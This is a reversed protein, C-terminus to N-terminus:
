KTFEDILASAEDFDSHLLHEDISNLLKGTKQSWTKERLENLINKIVKKEMEACANKIVQLKEKLLILADESDESLESAKEKNKIKKIINDLKELFENTESLLVNIDNERGAQELRFALASLEKEGINALASKMAHVNIIYMHINKEENFDKQLCNKIVGSAKEADRAFIKALQSDTEKLEHGPHEMSEMEAKERQAAELVETSQKDRILKNLTINLRRIDIPKSIFDDFGNNLFMEAHGALANATLAVIPKSYGMKRMQKTTEIGDMKPMMHDMFIVDYTMGDKIKDIAEFGSTALDIKFGYPIMLGKAVYLNTEVDDVILVHGYPMYERTIQTKKVQVLSSRKFQRLNEVAEKGIFGTIGVGDTKQPLRVTITTGENVASKVIIKGSMLDVLNRTITMGLGAGETTRNAELNFRTYEDFLKSIQEPSMGQGTDRIQFVLTVAVAGGGLSSYEAIVALEVEGKDTYKFANSLLNNLIQKIRLDDGILFAPINENVEIKFEIPKSIYRIYNLQIIDNILRAIEYKVPVLELKGAEIKSLDLIDNIINLLLNGSNNIKIFAESTSPPHSTNQMQIETMGLIANLPTRIEHSMTALFNSKQQTRMDSKKKAQTIYYMMTCLGWALFSGLIILFAAMNRVSKYYENVPIVIGLFWDYKIKIFYVVSNEYMYNKLQRETINIGMELENSLSAIGSDINYLKEGIFYQHPHAIIDLYNNVLIGYSSDTLNISIAHKNIRNLEIDLCIIALPAGNDDTLYRSFTLINNGTILDKYQESITIKGKADIARQYWPQNKPSFNEPLIMNRGSLYKGGWTFFYGHTTNLDMMHDKDSVFYNTVTTIYASLVDENEGRILMSRITESYGGLFTEPELLNAIIEAETFALANEAEKIMHGHEIRSAFIFSTVGMIVFAIVIIFM